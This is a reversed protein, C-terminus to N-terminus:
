SRLSRGEFSQLRTIIRIMAEQAADAADHPHGTMRLALRYIPHQLQRSLEELTNPDGDAARRALEGLRDGEEAPVEAARM